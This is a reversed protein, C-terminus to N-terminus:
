IRSRPSQSKGLQSRAPRPSLPAPLIRSDGRGMDLSLRSYFIYWNDDAGRRCQFFGGGWCSSWNNPPQRAGNSDFKAPRWIYWDRKPNSKSSRSEIFWAHQLHLKAISSYHSFTSATLVSEFSNPLSPYAIRVLDSTHNVVLDMVLKMGRKKVAELLATMDDMTGYRPDIARYNSIDYGNDKNPSEYIPSLWIIDIGLDLLYDLKSTIGPVDGVGDGNSDCFSMPYIQYVNASRWWERGVLTEAMSSISLSPFTSIVLVIPLSRRFQISLILQRM